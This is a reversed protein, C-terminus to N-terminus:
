IRIWGGVSLDHSQALRSGRDAVMAQALAVQKGCNFRACHARSGQNVRADPTQHVACVIGLGARNMRYHMDQVVRFQVMARLNTCADQGPTTRFHHLLEEPAPASKPKSNDSNLRSYLASAGSFGVVLSWRGVVSLQKGSLHTSSVLLAIYLIFIRIWTDLHHGKRFVNLGALGV